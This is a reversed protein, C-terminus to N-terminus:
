GDSTAAAQVTESADGFLVAIEDAVGQDDAIVRVGPVDTFAESLLAKASRPLAWIVMAELALERFLEAATADALPPEPTFVIVTPSLGAAKRAVPDRRLSASIHELVVAFDGVVIRKVDRRGLLGAPRPEGRLGDEDGHLMRVQFSFGPLEALKKDVELLASRNRNLATEERSSVDGVILLYVLREITPEAAADAVPEEERQWRVGPLWRRIKSAPKPPEAPSAPQAPRGAQGAPQAPSAPALAPPGAPPLAQAAAAPEPPAAVVTTAPAAVAAAPSDSDALVDPEQSMPLGGADGAAPTEQHYRTRLGALEAAPLGTEHSTLLSRQIGDAFRYLVAALDDKKSWIGTPSTMIRPPGSRDRAPRDDTNSIGLLRPRLDTIFAGGASQSLLQAAVVASRDVVVVVFHNRASLAHPGLLANAIARLAGSYDGGLGPHPGLDAFRFEVFDSLAPSMMVRKAAERTVDEVNPAAKTFTAVVCLCGSSDPDFAGDAADSM